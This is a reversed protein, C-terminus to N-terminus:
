QETCYQHEEYKTAKQESKHVLNANEVNEQVEQEGHHHLRSQATHDFLPM